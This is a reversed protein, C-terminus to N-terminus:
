ESTLTRAIASGTAATSSTKITTSLSSRSDSRTLNSISQPKKLQKCTFPSTNYTPGYIRATTPKRAPKRAHCRRCEVAGPSACNGAEHHQEKQLHNCCAHHHLREMVHRYHDFVLEYGDTLLQVDM